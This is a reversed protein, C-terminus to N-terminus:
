EPCPNVKKPWNGKILFCLLIFLGLIVFFTIFPWNSHKTLYVSSYGISCMNNGMEFLALSPGKQTSVVRSFRGNNQKVVNNINWFLLYGDISAVITQDNDIFRCCTFHTPLGATYSQRQAKSLKLKYVKTDSSETLVLVLFRHYHAVVFKGNTSAVLGCMSKNRPNVISTKILKSERINYLCVHGDKTGVAISNNNLVCCSCIRSSIDPISFDTTSGNRLDVLRGGNNRMSALYNDTSLLRGICKKDRYYHSLTKTSIDYMYIDGFSDVIAISDENNCLVFDLIDQPFLGIFNKSKLVCNFGHVAIFVCGLSNVCFAYIEKRKNSITGGFYPAEDLEDGFDVIRDRIRKHLDQMDSQKVDRKNGLIFLGVEYNYMFDNIEDLDSFAVTFQITEASFTTFFYKDSFRLDSVSSISFSYESDDKKPVKEKIRMFVGSETRVITLFGRFHLARDDIAIKFLSNESSFLSKEM